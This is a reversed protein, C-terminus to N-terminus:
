AEENLLEAEVIHLELPKTFEVACRAAAEAEAQSDAAITITQQAIAEVTIAFLKM